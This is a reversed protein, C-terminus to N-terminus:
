LEVFDCPKLADLAMGISPAIAKLERLRNGPFVVIGIRREMLKQQYKLNQDAMVFANFGAKEAADIMEGNELEGWKMSQETIVKHGPLEKRLPRPMNVDFLIKM